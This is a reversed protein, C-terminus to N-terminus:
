AADRESRRSSSLGLRRAAESPPYPSDYLGRAYGSFPQGILDQDTVEVFVRQLSAPAESPLAPDRLVAEDTVRRHTGIDLPFILEALPREGAPVGGPAVWQAGRRRVFWVTAM